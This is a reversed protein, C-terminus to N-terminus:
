APVAAPISWDRSCCHFLDVVLYGGYIWEVYGRPRLSTRSFGGGFIKRDVWRGICPRNRLPLDCCRLALDLWHGANDFNVSVPGGDFCTRGAGVKGENRTFQAERLTMANDGLPRAQRSLPGACLHSDEDPTPYFSILSIPIASVFRSNMAPSPMVTSVCTDHLFIM